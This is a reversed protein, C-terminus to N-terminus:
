KTSSLSMMNKLAPATFRLLKTYCVNYSTIRTGEYPYETEMGINIKKDLMDLEANNSIYLHIYIENEKVSYIYQGLSTILRALNPPCCACGFWEPRVPLVHKRNPNNRSAEPDVELPNVYFFNKGDLSMGAICTNYLAREMTDAYRSNQEIMLMRQMFFVLGTIVEYLM